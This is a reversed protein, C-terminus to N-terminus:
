NGVKIQNDNVSVLKPIKKITSNGYDSNDRFLIHSIEGINSINGIKEWYGMKMVIKRICHAYFEVEDNKNM